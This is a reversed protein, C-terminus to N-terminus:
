AALAWAYTKGLGRTLGARPGATAADPATWRRGVATGALLIRGARPKRCAIRRPRSPETAHQHLFPGHQDAGLPPLPPTPGRAAGAPCCGAPPPESPWRM